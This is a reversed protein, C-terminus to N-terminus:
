FWCYGRCDARRTEEPTVMKLRNDRIELLVIARNNHYDAELLITGPNVSSVLAYFGDPVATIDLAQGDLHLKYTDGWGASLGQLSQGCDFYNRLPSFAPNDRDVPDTDIVCYSLKDSSVVVYDLGGNPKLSWLEYLTFDEFHWHDHGPHWVFEGVFHKLLSGDSTTIRQHVRTQSTASNFEGMLELHGQGSNWITNALRLERMGGALPTIKIDYPALTRLDPLLLPGGTEPEDIDPLIEQAPNVLITPLYVSQVAQSSFLPSPAFSGAWGAIWTGLMGVRALGKAVQEKKVWISLSIM